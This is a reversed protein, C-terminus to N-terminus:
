ILIPDVCTASGLATLFIQQADGATVEGNGNCDAACEEEFSPAYAGLAILFALQADGATIEGDLTVDGDNICESTPTPTPEPTPSSCRSRACT